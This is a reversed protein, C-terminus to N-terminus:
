TCNKFMQSLHWFFFPDGSSNLCHNKLSHCVGAVRRHSGALMVTRFADRDANTPWVKFVDDPDTSLPVDNKTLNDFAAAYKKLDIQVALDRAAAFALQLTALRQQGDIIQRLPVKGM